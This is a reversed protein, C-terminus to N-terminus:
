RPNKFRVEQLIREAASIQGDLLHAEITGVRRSLNKVSEEIRGAQRSIKLLGLLVVIASPIAWSLWVSNM